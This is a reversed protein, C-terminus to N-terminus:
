PGISSKLSKWIQDIEDMENVRKDQLQKDLKSQFEGKKEVNQLIGVNWKKLRRTRRIGTLKIKMTAAVPNHDSGCDAGPM